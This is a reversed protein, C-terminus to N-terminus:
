RRFIITEFTYLLIKLDLMFSINNLYYLDYSLKKNMNEIKDVYKYKVQAWGTLGPKVLLRKKFMPYKKIIKLFIEPREPRPGIFSMDGKLINILQPLEDLHFLRLIKGLVTLSTDNKNTFYKKDKKNKEYITRFKIIKFEKNHISLRNQLFFIKDKSIIKILVSIILFLPSLIIILLLALIIDEARKIFKSYISNLKYYSFLEYHNNKIIESPLSQDFYSFVDILTYIKGGNIEYDDIILKFDNNYSYDNDIILYNFKNIKSKLKALKATNLISVINISFWKNYEKVLKNLLLLNSKSGFYLIDLPKKNNLSSFLLKNFISLIIPIILFGTFFVFRAFKIQTFYFFIGLLCISIISVLFNSLLSEKIQSLKNIEYIKL